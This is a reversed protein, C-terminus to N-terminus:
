KSEIVPSEWGDYNGDAEITKKLLETTIKNITEFEVTSTHSIILRYPYESEQLTGEEVIKYFNSDLNRKFDERNKNELFYVWHNIERPIHLDDNNAKLQEVVERDIKRQKEFDDPYLTKLYFEWNPDEGISIVCKLKKYKSLAKNLMNFLSDKHKTYYYFSKSDAYTIAGVVYDLETLHSEIEDEVTGLLENDLKKSFISRSKMNVEMLIKAGDIPANGVIGVDVRVVTKSKSLYVEWHDSM